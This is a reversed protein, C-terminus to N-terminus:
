GDDPVEGDVALAQTISALGEKIAGSIYWAYGFGAVIAVADAARGQEVAWASRPAFTTANADPGSWGPWSPQAACAPNPRCHCARGDLM